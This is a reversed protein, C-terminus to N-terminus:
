RDRERSDDRRYPPHRMSSGHVDHTQRYQQWGEYMNQPSRQMHQPHMHQTHQPHIQQLRQQHQFEMNRHHMRSHYEQASERERVFQRDHPHVNHNNHMSPHHHEAYSHAPQQSLMDIIDEPRHRSTDISNVGAHNYAHTHTHTPSRTSMGIGGAANTGVSMRMSDVREEAVNALHDLLQTEDRRLRSSSPYEQRANGATHHARTHIGTDMHMLRMSYGSSGVDTMAPARRRADQKEHMHMHPHRDMREVRRDGHMRGVHRDISNYDGGANRTPSHKRIEEEPEMTRRRKKSGPVDMYVGRDSRVYGEPGGHTRADPARDADDVMSLDIVAHEGERRRIRENPQQMSNARAPKCSSLDINLVYNCFPTNAWSVSSDNSRPKDATSISAAPTHSKTPQQAPAHTSVVDIMDYTSSASTTSVSVSGVEASPANSKTNTRPAVPRYNQAKEHPNYELYDAYTNNFYPLEAGSYYFPLSLIHRLENIVRQQDPHEGVPEESAAFDFKNLPSHLPSIVDEEVRPPSTSIHLGTHRSESVSSEKRTSTHTHISGVPPAGHPGSDLPERQTTDLPKLGHVNRQESCTNTDTSHARPTAPVKIRIINREVPPPPPNVNASGSSSTPSKRPGVHVAPPAPPPKGSSSNTPVPPPNGQQVKNGTFLHSYEVLLSSSKQQGAPAQKLAALNSLSGTRIAVKKTSPSLLGPRPGGGSGGGTTGNVTAINVTNVIPANSKVVPKAAPAPAATNRSLNNLLSNIDPLGIGAIVPPQSGPPKMM